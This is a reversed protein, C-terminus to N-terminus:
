KRGLEDSCAGLQNIPMQEKPPQNSRPRLEHAKLAMAVYGEDDIADRSRRFFILCSPTGRLPAQGLGCRQAVIRQVDGVTACSLGNSCGPYGRPRVCIQFTSAAGDSESVYELGARLSQICM